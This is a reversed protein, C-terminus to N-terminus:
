KANNTKRYAIVSEKGMAKLVTVVIEAGNEFDDIIKKNLEKYYKESSLDLDERMDGTEDHMLSLFNDELINILEYETKTVNPCDVNHSSPVSDEVKKNTFLCLGMIASKAHGHKGTKSTSVSVIKCPTGKILMYHGKKISGASTPFTLSGEVTNEFSEDSSM